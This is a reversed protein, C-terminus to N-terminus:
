PKTIRFLKTEGYDAVYENVAQRIVGSVDTNNETAVRQLDRHQVTTLRIVVLKKAAEEFQPSRAM